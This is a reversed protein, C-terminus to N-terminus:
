TRPEPAPQALKSGTEVYVVADLDAVERLHGAEVEAALLRTKEDFSRVRAGLVELERGLAEPDVAPTFEITILIRTEPEETLLAKRARPSLSRPLRTKM